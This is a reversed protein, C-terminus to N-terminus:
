PSYGPIPAWTCEPSSGGSHVESCCKLVTEKARGYKQHWASWDMSSGSLGPAMWYALKWDIGEVRVQKGDKIVISDLAGLVTSEHGFDKAVGMADAAWSLCTRGSTLRHCSTCSAASTATLMQYGVAQPPGKLMVRAFPGKTYGGTKWPTSKLFPTYLFPDNDHCYICGGGETINFHRGFETVEAEPARGIDLSPLNKGAIAGSYNEWWCTAGTRQNSAIVAVKDFPVTPDAYQKTYTNRRCIWKVNIDGHTLQGLRSGPSCSGGFLAPNHCAEVADTVPELRTPTGPRSRYVQIAVGEACQLEARSPLWDDFAARCKCSYCRAEAGPTSLDACLDACGLAARASPIHGSLALLLLVRVM